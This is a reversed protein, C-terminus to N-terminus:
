AFYEEKDKEELRLAEQAQEIANQLRKVTEKDLEWIPDGSFHKKLRNTANAIVLKLAWASM